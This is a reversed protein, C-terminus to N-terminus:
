AGELRGEGAAPRLSPEATPPRADLARGLGFLLGLWMAVLTIAAIFVLAAVPLLLAAGSRSGTGVLVLPVIGFLGTVVLLVRALSAREALAHAEIALATQKLSGLLALGAVIGLVIAAGGCLQMTSQLSEMERISPSGWFSSARRASDLLDMLHSTALAACLDLCWGLAIGGLALGTGGESRLEFPLKRYRVLGVGVVVAVGGQLLSVLLGLSGAMGYERSALLAYAGGSGLLAVGIRALLGWGILRLADGGTGEQSVGTADVADVAGLRKGLDRASSAVLWASVVSGTLWALTWGGTTPKMLWTGLNVLEFGVALVVFAIWRARLSSRGGRSTPVAPLLAIAAAIAIAVSGEQASYRGFWVVSFLVSRSWPAIWDAFLVASLLADIVALVLAARFLLVSRPSVSARRAHSVAAALAVTTATAGVFGSAESVLSLARSVAFFSETSMAHTGKWLWTSFTYRAFSLLVRILRDGGWVLALWGFVRGIRDM